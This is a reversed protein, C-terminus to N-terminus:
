DELRIILNGWEDVHCTDNPFIIVTSDLQEIIAPGPIEQGAHLDGRRLVPTRQRVGSKFLSNRYELPESDSQTQILPLQGQQLEGVAKAMVNVIQVPEDESAFGYLAVHADQFDQRTRAVFEAADLDMDVNLTLEYNQGFYRAGVSWVLLRQQPTVAENEFWHEVKKALTGAIAQIAPVNDETLECFATNVFDATIDANMAGEACLIGPNPPILITNMGLERAVDVAHLAGAGGFALLAFDKPDYGREISISRIAKVMRSCAVQIIGLAVNDSDMQLNEALDNITAVSRAKNIPMRGDLLAESNLRDLVINADTVTAQTGGLDYCAPGPVAGASQPGVKLLGDTDIWAISGGGAGVSNVDMCPIRVPFGGITRENVESPTLDKLLAVDASTGGVDLTIIDQFGAVRARYLAGQVGAAPGSLSARVPFERATRVSMLGGSSQSIKVDTPLGLRGAEDTLRDLYSGVVSLLAGNLVATSFREFERFEPYVSSSTIVKITDPVHKRMIEAAREEDEPFAYSHLFCIVICNLCADDFQGALEEVATEDLPVHIRGDALRRQPVEFRMGREVLVPPHDLHMDYVTPRTQRGIEILDRFGQSTVLAVNGGKRQIIANTGVTTGHALRETDTFNLDHQAFLSHLGQLIAEEPAAPTSSLKHLLLTTGDDRNVAIDTFTGGVDVGIYM